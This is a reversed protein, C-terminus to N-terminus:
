QISCGPSKSKAEDKYYLNVQSHELSNDYDAILNLVSVPITKETAEDMLEFTKVRFINHSMKLFQVQQYLKKLQDENLYPRKLKMEVSDIQDQLLYNLIKLTDPHRQDCGELHYLLREPANLVAGKKLLLEIIDPQYNKIALDLAFFGERDFIELDINDHTLLYEAVTSHKLSIAWMLATRGNYCPINLDAGSEVLLKVVEFHNYYAAETLATDNENNQIDLNAKAEILQKVVKTQGRMAASILATSGKYGKLDVNAKSDLLEAVVDLHGNEAAVSLATDNNIDKSDISFEENTYNELRIAQYAKLEQNSIKSFIPIAKILNKLQTLDDTRAAKIFPKVLPHVNRTHM